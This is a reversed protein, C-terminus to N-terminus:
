ELSANTNLVGTGSANTYKQRIVLPMRGEIFIANQVSAVGAPAATGNVVDPDIASWKIRADDPNDMAVRDDTGEYSFAGAADGTWANTISVKGAGRTCLPGSTIVSTGTMVGDKVFGTYQGPM